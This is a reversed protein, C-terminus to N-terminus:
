DHFLHLQLNTASLTRGSRLSACRDRDRLETESKPSHVHLTKCAPDHQQCVRESVIGGPKPRLKINWLEAIQFFQNLAPIEVVSLKVQDSRDVFVPYCLRGNDIPFSIGEEFGIVGLNVSFGSRLRIM